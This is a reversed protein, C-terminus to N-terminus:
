RSRYAAEIAAQVRDASVGQSALIRAATDETDRILGLLVHETRIRDHGLRAAERPSNQLVRKARPTLPLFGIVEDDGTGLQAVVAEEVSAETVGFTALSQAAGGDRQALLGLLVHETGISRHRLRRAASQANVVASRTAPCFRAFLDGRASSQRRRQAAEDLLRGVDERDVM